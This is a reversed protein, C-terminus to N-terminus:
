FHYDIKTRLVVCILQSVSLVGASVIKERFFFECDVFYSISQGVRM